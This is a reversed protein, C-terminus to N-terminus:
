NIYILQHNHSALEPVTLQHTEAGFTGGLAINPATANTVRGGTTGAALTIPDTGIGVAVYGRRDPINFTNLGDGMGYTVGIANLLLPYALRSVAQGNCEIWNASPPPNLGSYEIIAGIPPVLSNLEAVTENLHFIQQELRDIRDTCKADSWLTGVLCFISILLLKLKNKM